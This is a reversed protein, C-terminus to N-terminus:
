ISVQGSFAIVRIAQKQNLVIRKIDFPFSFWESFCIVLVSGSGLFPPPM